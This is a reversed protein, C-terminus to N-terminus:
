CPASSHDSLQWGWAKQCKPCPCGQWTRHAWILDLRGQHRPAAASEACTGLATLPGCMGWLPVSAGACGPGQFGQLLWHHKHCHRTWSSFLQMLLELFALGATIGCIGHLSPHLLMHHSVAVGLIERSLLWVSSLVRRETFLFSLCLMKLGKVGTEIPRPLDLARGTCM